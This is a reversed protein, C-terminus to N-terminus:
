SGLLPSDLIGVLMAREYFSHSVLLGYLLSLFLSPLPIHIVWKPAKFNKVLFTALSSHAGDGLSQLCARIYSGACILLFSEPSHHTAILYFKQCITLCAKKKEKTHSLLPFVCLTNIFGQLIESVAQPKNLTSFRHKPVSLAKNKSKLRPKM